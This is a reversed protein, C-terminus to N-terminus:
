PTSRALALGSPLTIGGQPLGAVMGGEYRVRVLGIEEAFYLYTLMDITIGHTEGGPLTVQAEAFTFQEIPLASLQGFPLSIAELPLTRSSLVLRGSELTADVPGSSLPLTLTGSLTYEADWNSEMGLPLLTGPGPLFAGDVAEGALATGLAPHVALLPPLGVLGESTCQLTGSAGDWTLTATATADQVAAHLTLPPSETGEWQYVWQGGNWLPWLLHTCPGGGPMGLMTPFVEPSPSALETLASAETPIPPLDGPTANDAGCGTISLALIALSWAAIGFATCGGKRIESKAM